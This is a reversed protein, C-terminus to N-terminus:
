TIIIEYAKYSFKFINQVYTKYFQKHKKYNLIKLDKINRWQFIRMKDNRSVAFHAM